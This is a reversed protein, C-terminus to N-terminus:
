FSKYHTKLDNMDDTQKANIQMRAAATYKATQAKTILVVTLGVVGAAVVVGIGIGVYAYWSLSGGCDLTVLVALGVSTQEVVGTARCTPNQAALVLSSFVGLISPSTSEQPLVEILLFRGGTTINTISLVGSVKLHGKVKVKDSIAMKIGIAGILTTNGILTFEQVPVNGDTQVLFDIAAVSCKDASSCACTGGWRQDPCSLQTYCEAFYASNTSSINWCGNTLPVPTFPIACTPCSQLVPGSVSTCDAFSVQPYQCAIRIAFVGTVYCDPLHEDFLIPGSCDDSIHRQNHVWRGPYRKLNPTPEIYIMTFTPRQLVLSWVSMCAPTPWLATSVPKGQCSANVFVQQEIVTADKASLLHLESSSPGRSICHPLAYQTWSFPPAPASGASAGCTRDELYEASTLVVGDVSVSLLLVFLFAIFSHWHNSMSLLLSSPHLFGSESTYFPRM